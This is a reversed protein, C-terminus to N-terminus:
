PGAALTRPIAPAVSSPSRPATRTISTEDITSSAKRRLSAAHSGNSTVSAFRDRGAVLFPFADRSAPRVLLRFLGLRLQDSFKQAEPQRTRRIRDRDLPDSFNDAQSFHSGHRANRGTDSSHHRQTTVYNLDYVHPYAQVEFHACRRSAAADDNQM